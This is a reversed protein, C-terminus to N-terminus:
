DDAQDPGELESLDLEPYLTKCCPPCIGHTFTHQKFFEEMRVWGRAHDRISKCNACLVMLDKTQEEERQLFDQYKERLEILYSIDRAVVISGNYEGRDDILPSCTLETHVIHGKTHRFGIEYRDTKGARRRLIQKNILSLDGDRVLGTIEMGALADAPQGVMTCFAPNTFTIHEDVDLTFVGEAIQHTITRYQAER